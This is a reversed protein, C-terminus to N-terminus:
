AAARQRETSPLVVTVHTRADAAVHVRVSGGLQLAREHISWPMFQAPPAGAAENSVDIVLQGASRTLIVWARRSLTHRLVNNLAEIAIRQAANATDTDIGDLGSASVQVQLGYVREIQQAHREISGLLEGSSASRGAYLDLTYRRLDDITSDAMELVERIRRSLSEDGSADHLLAQVALRLGIYPQITTDHLDRSLNRREDETARVILEDSLRAKDELTGLAAAWQALFDLDAPEVRHRENWVV